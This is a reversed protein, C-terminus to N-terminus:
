LVVAALRMRLVILVALCLFATGGCFISCFQKPNCVLLYSTASGAILGPAYIINYDQPM